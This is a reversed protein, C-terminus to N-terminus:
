FGVKTWDGIKDLNAGRESLAKALDGRRTKLTNVRITIPRKQENAEFFAIAEEPKFLNLFYETLEESYSYYRPSNPPKYIQLKKSTVYHM